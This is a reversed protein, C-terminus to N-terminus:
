LLYTRRKNTSIPYAKLYTELESLTLYHQSEDIRNILTYKHGELEKGGIILVMPYFVKQKLSKISLSEALNKHKMDFLLDYDLAWSKLFPEEFEPKLLKVKLAVHPVSNEYILLDMLRQVSGMSFHIIAADKLNFAQPNLLDLQVTGLQLDKDSNKYTFEQKICFYPKKYDETSTLDECSEPTQYDTATILDRSFDQYLRYVEYFKAKCSKNLLKEYFGAIQLKLETFIKKISTLNNRTIMHYDPMTFYNGRSLTRLSGTSEVRYCDSVEHYISDYAPTYKKSWLSLANACCAPKMTFEPIVSKSNETKTVGVSYQKEPFKECYYSVLPDELDLFASTKIESFSYKRRLKQNFEEIFRKLYNLVSTYENSYINLGKPSKYEVFLDRIAGLTATNKDETVFETQSM